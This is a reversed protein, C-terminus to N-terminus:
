ALQVVFYLNKKEPPCTAQKELMKLEVAPFSLTDLSKEKEVISKVFFISVISIGSMLLALVHNTDLVFRQLHLYPEIICNLYEPLRLPCISTHFCSMQIQKLM